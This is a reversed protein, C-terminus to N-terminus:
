KAVFRVFKDGEKVMVVTEFGNSGTYVAFTMAYKQGEAANPYLTQLLFDLGATIEADDWYNASSSRRDFSGFSNVNIADPNELGKNVAIAKYDAAALRYPITNDPIWGTGDHEFQLSAPMVDQQAVWQAGNYVLKVVEDITFRKTEVTYTYSYVAFRVDDKNAFLFRQNFLTAIRTIATTRNDFNDSSQGLFRYDAKTIVYPLSWADNYRLVKSISDKKAPVEDVVIPFAYKLALLSFNEVTPWVYTAARFVDAQNQLTLTSENIATSQYDAETLTYARASDVRVPSYLKYTVMIKSGKGLKPNKSELMYPIFERVQAESTFYKNTAINKGGEVNAVSTYDDDALTYGFSEGKADIEDYIDEYPDCAFVVLLSAIGAIYKLYNKM